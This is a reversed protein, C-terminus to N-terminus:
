DKGAKLIVGIAQIVKKDKHEKCYVIVEHIGEKVRDVKIAHKKALGNYVAATGFVSSTPM